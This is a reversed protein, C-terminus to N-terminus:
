KLEGDLLEGDLDAALDVLAPLGGSALASGPWVAVVYETLRWPSNAEAAVGRSSIAVDISTEDCPRPM